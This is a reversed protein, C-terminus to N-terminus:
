ESYELLPLASYLIYESYAMHGDDVSVYTIQYLRFITFWTKVNRLIDLSGNNEVEKMNKFTTLACMKKQLEVLGM